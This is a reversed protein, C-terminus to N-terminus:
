RLKAGPYYHELIERYSFGKRAMVNAGYQSMGLGHGYGTVTFTFVEGACSISFFTSRLGFATRLASGSLQRSGITIFRVRGSDDLQTEGLWLSPDGSLQAEPESALITERFSEAAVTVTSVFNPVDNETEPSSVCDLYPIDGWLEAGQETKGASSSHFAALIVEDDYLMVRGDTAEVASLIKEM